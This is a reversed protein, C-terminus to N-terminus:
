KNSAKIKNAKIERQKKYYLQNKANVISHVKYETGKNNYHTQLVLIYNVRM